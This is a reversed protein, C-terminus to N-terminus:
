LGSSLQRYLFSTGQKIIRESSIRKIILFTQIGFLTIFSLKANFVVKMILPSLDSIKVM